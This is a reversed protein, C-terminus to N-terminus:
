ASKLYGPTLVRKVLDVFVCASLYEQYIEDITINVNYESFNEHVLMNRRDGLDLFALESERLEENADIEARVKKKTEEGFLGWFSNTNKERWPFLTHYQRSIVKNEVLTAVRNDGKAAERTFSSITMSIESEFYSAASLLLVKKYVDDIYSAFSIEEQEILYRYLEQEDKYQQEIRDSNM